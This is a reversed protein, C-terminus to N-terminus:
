RSDEMETSSAAATTEDTFSERALQCLYSYLIGSTQELLRRENEPTTASYIVEITKSEWRRKM